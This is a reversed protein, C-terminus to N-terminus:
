EISEGGIQPQPTKEGALTVVANLVANAGQEVKAPSSLGTM